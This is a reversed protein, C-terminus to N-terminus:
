VFIDRYKKPRKKKVPYNTIILERGDKKEEMSSGSYKWSAEHIHFGDSKPFLERVLPDDDYSICVKHKCRKVVDAFSQHDKESFGHEYQKDTDPMSTNVMYPPDLYLWVDDGPAELLVRYDGCTIRTGKIHEAAQELRDGKVINWGEPNSFYLRSKLGYNVRGAWVTRNIFFYRLAQRLVNDTTDEEVLENFQQSLRANYEKGGRKGERTAVVLEGEKMPKIAKCMAIFEKSKWRLASYVRILDPHKDNIWRM